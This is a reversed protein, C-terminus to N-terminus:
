AWKEMYAFSRDLRGSSPYGLRQLIAEAAPPFEGGFHCICRVGKGEVDFACVTETEDHYTFRVLPGLHKAAAELTHPWSYPDALLAAEERTIDTEGDSM